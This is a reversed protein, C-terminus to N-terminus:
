RVGPRRGSLAGHHDSYFRLMSALHLLLAKGPRGASERRSVHEMLAGPVLWVQSGSEWARWCLDVDEFYLFYRPSMLGFRERGAATVWMAAGVIWDVPSPRDVPPPLHRATAARGAPTAGWPTRRALISAPDPFSRASHQILGDPSLLRPGAIGVWPHSGCFESLTSISGPRAIVDPNLLLVPGHGCLGAAIGNARALGLNRDSGVARVGRFGRAIAFSGDSSANDFVVIARPADDGTLDLLSRLCLGLTGSSNYTTIIVSVEAPM